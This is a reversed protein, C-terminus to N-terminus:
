TAMNASSKPLPTQFIGTVVPVISGCEELRLGIEVALADFFRPGLEDYALKQQAQDEGYAKAVIDHLSVM